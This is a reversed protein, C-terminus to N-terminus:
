HEETVQLLYGIQAIKGRTAANDPQVTTDGIKRLGLITGSQSEIFSRLSETDIYPVPIASGLRFILLAMITFLIKKKLEPVHWANRITEIM